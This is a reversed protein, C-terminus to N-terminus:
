IDGLRKFIVNTYIHENTVGSGLVADGSSISSVGFFVYDEASDDVRVVSTATAATYAGTDYVSTLTRSTDFTRDITNNYVLIRPYMTGDAGDANVMAEITIKYIGTRPFKFFADASDSSSNPVDTDGYGRNHMKRSSPGCGYGDLVHSGSFWEWCPRWTSQMGLYDTDDTHNADLAWQEVFFDEARLKDATITAASIIRSPIKKIPQLAM